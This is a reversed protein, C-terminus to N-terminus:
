FIVNVCIRSWDEFEDIYNILKNIKIYQINEVTNDNSSLKDDLIDWIEVVGFHVKSVDEENNKIFGVLSKKIVNINKIEERIERIASNEITQNVNITNEQIILDAISIHGGFGISLRGHLRKEGGKSGRYYAAILNNKKIIIYPIIQRFSFDNELINRPGFWINEYSLLSKYDIVNASIFGQDKIYYSIINEKICLITEM